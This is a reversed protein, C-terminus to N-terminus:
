GLDLSVIHEPSIQVGLRQDEKGECPDLQQVCQSGELHRPSPGRGQRTPVDSAAKPATIHRVVLDRPQLYTPMPLPCSTVAAKRGRTPSPFAVLSPHPVTHSPFECFPSSFNARSGPPLAAQGCAMEFTATSPAAEQLQYRGRPVPHTHFPAWPVSPIVSLGPAPAATWDSTGPEGIAAVSQMRHSIPLCLFCVPSGCWPGTGAASLPVPNVGFWPSYPVLKPAVFVREMDSCGAPLALPLNSSKM